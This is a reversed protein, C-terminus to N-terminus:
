RGKWEPRRKQLFASVGEAVDESELNAALMEQLYALADGFPMDMSHFLSEKGLRLIFPSKSALEGVLEDVASDLQPRPVVRNVM